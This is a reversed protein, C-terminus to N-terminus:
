PKTHRTEAGDNSQKRVVAILGESHVIGRIFGEEWEKSQKSNGRDKEHYGKEKRLLKEIEVLLGVDAHLSGATRRRKWMPKFNRKM